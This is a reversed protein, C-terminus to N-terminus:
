VRSEETSQLSVKPPNIDRFLLMDVIRMSGGEYYGNEYQYSRPNRFTGFLMDLVPLDAFNYYHIGKGHHVHHSEPRQVLYGVWRPTKINMHQFIALFFTIQLIMVVAEVPLGIILNFSLSVLLTFAVMDMPSFWFAGATDIREASHHMQHFVRWLTASSHMGRHWFYLGTEFVLLGIPVAAWLPLQSADILQYRAIYGDVILPLYNSIMFYLCFAVIGRLLWFPSAPMKRAPFLAELLMLGAYIAFFTYSLPNFILEIPSPM